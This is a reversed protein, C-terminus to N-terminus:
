IGDEDDEEDQKVVPEYIVVQNKGSLEVQKAFSLPDNAFNRSMVFEIIMALNTGAFVTLNDHNLTATAAMRFPTGGMLDTFIFIHECNELEKIGNEILELLGDPSIVGDFDIAKYNEHQGTILEVSSTIGSAFNAHGTIIIGIM